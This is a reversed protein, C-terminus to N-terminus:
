LESFGVREHSFESKADAVGSLILWGCIERQKNHNNNIRSAPQQVLRFWNTQNTLLGYLEKAGLQYLVHVDWGSNYHASPVGMGAANNLDLTCM